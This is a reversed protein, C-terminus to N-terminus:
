EKLFVSKRVKVVEGAGNRELVALTENVWLVRKLAPCVAGIERAIKLTTKPSINGDQNWLGIWLFSELRPWRSLIHLLDSRLTSQNHRYHRTLDSEEIQLSKLRPGIATFLSDLEGLTRVDKVALSRVNSFTKLLNLNEDIGHDEQVHPKNLHGWDRPELTSISTLRYSSSSPPRHRIIARLISRALEPHVDLTQLNPLFARGGAAANELINSLSLVTVLYENDIYFPFTPLVPSLTQTASIARLDQHEALFRTAIKHDCTIFGSIKFSSLRPWTSSLLPSVDICADRNTFYCHYYCDNDITM